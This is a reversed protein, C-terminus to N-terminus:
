KKVEIYRQSYGAFLGLGNQINSYVAPLYSLSSIQNNQNAYKEMSVYFDYMEKSLSIIRLFYKENNGTTGSGDGTEEGETFVFSKKFENGNEKYVINTEDAGKLNINRVKNVDNFFKGPNTFVNSDIPNKNDSPIWNWIFYGSHQDKIDFRIRLADKEDLVINETVVNINTVKLPVKSLATIPKYGPVIVNLLYTHEPKATFFPYTYLGNGHNKMEETRGTALEKITVVANEVYQIEKDNSLINRSFTLHVKFAANETFACNVVVQPVFEGKAIVYDEECSTLFL